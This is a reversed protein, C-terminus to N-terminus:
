RLYKVMYSDELKYGLKKYYERVGVGSIISLKGFGKEKSIEEAKKLLKKGMGKHQSNKGKEGLALAQGYVHIERVMARNSLRLRLLGFLVDDNNIIELFYEDGGSAKYKTIKLFTNLDVKEKQQGIERSRIEKLKIKSLDGRMSTSAAELKMKEKPIERMVRMIRCYRPVLKMMKILLKQIESNTYPKYNIKEYVKALTSSKVIQCPYLKLQDPKFDENKFILKFKKLDKRKNSFPLGPMIHYGVKFGANKLRRTAEVVDRVSHGRNIKKYIKDDPIQVGIEIRTAGYSLMEKIEEESCNDPRNEICLAVVRQKSTENIKKAEELNKSKKNNIADYLGKIYNHRFEKPYQLFTGGIIIVELKEVPHGMDKLVKLRAKVQRKVDYDLAMARMIAPSKDTYSQPVFDGGPCYICSGHKCKKPPLVVTLPTIGSKSRVPKKVM